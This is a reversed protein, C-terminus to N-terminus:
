EMDAFVVLRDSYSKKNKNWVGECTILNLHVKGDNSSYADSPNDNEGYTRSERVVFATTTGKENEVYIRDGAQLLHLDDFVAAKGDKWGFHGAVVATGKEGPRPGLSFWGANGPEKPVDMSGDPALGVYEIAADVNIKPITLRVPLTRRSEGASLTEQEGSATNQYSEVSASNILNQPIRNEAVTKNAVWRFFPLINPASFIIGVIIIAFLPWQLSTRSHMFKGVINYKEKKVFL